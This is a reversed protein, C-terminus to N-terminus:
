QTRRNGYWGVAQAAHFNRHSLAALDPGQVLVTVLVMEVTSHKSDMLAMMAWLKVGPEVGPGQGQAIVTVVVTKVILVTSETLTAMASIKTQPEVAPRHESQSRRRKAM